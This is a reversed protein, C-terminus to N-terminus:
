APHGDGRGTVGDDASDRFDDQVLRVLAGVARSADVGTARFHLMTNQPVKAAMVKVISKADIWPGAPRTALEIAAAFTRALTTLKVCPRAHLGVAHELLVTGTADPQRPEDIAV